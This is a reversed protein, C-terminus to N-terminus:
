VVLGGPPEGVLVERAHHVGAVLPDRAAHADAGAVDGSGVFGHVCQGGLGGALGERRGAPRGRVDVHHQHGRGGGDVARGVHGGPDGGPEADGAGGGQVEVDH